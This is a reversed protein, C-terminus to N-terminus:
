NEVFDDNIRMNLHSSKGITQARGSCLYFKQGALGRCSTVDFEFRPNVRVGFRFKASLDCLASCSVRRVPHKTSNEAPSFLRNKACLGGSGKTQTIEKCLSSPPEQFGTLYFSDFWDVLKKSQTNALPLLVRKNKKGKIYTARTRADESKFSRSILSEFSQSLNSDTCFENPVSQRVAWPFFITKELASM